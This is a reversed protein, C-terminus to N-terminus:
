IDREAYSQGIAKIEPFDDFLPPKEDSISSAAREVQTPQPFDSAVFLSSELISNFLTSL